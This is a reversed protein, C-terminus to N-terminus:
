RLDPVAVHHAFRADPGGSPGRAGRLVANGLRLHPQPIRRRDDHKGTFASHHSYPGFPPGGISGRKSLTMAALESTENPTAACSRGFVCNLTIPRLLGVTAEVTSSTGNQRWVSGLAEFPAIVASIVGSSWIPMSSLVISRSSFSPTISKALMSMEFIAPSSGRKSPHSRAPM